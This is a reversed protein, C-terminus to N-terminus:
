TVFCVSDFCVSDTELTSGPHSCRWEHSDFHFDCYFAHFVCPPRVQERGTTDGDDFNVTYTRSGLHILTHSVTARALASFSIGVVVYVCLWVCM